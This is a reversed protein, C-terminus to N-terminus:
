FKRNQPDLGLAPVLALELTEDDVFNHAAVNWGYKNTALENMDKLFGIFDGTEWPNTMNM